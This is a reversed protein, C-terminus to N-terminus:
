PTVGHQRLYPLPNIDSGYAPGTRIEFHLHPGTVNGTAGSRGIKQGASVKDNATVSMQSLHAYQSYRGDAHRIVIQNGYRGGWGASVVTGSTLSRITTGTPVTFDIGTHLGSSWNSGGAHYGTGLAGEVPRVYDKSANGLTPGAQDYQRIFGIVKDAYWGAQNYRLISRRLQSENSLDNSGTGCLYVAAALTADFANHPDKAGDANGDQGSPGNWTTPIFQMPGVARDYRTDGDLRGHDTDSFAETNGGAGSGNLAVGIIKPRIDGNAALTRGEAHNSEVKGIGALVSWRMGKCKPRLKTIRSAASTYASLMVPRIGKVSDPAAQDAGAGAGAALAAQRNQDNEDSAIASTLAVVVGLFLLLPIVAAAGLALWGRNTM